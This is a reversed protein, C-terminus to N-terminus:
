ALELLEAQLAAVAARPLARSPCRRGVGAVAAGRFDFFELGPEHRPQPRPILSREILQDAARPPPHQGHGAAHEPRRPGGAHHLRDQEVQERRRVREVLHALGAKGPPDERSGVAYRVDVEVLQTSADPM